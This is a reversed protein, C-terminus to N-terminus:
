LSSCESILMLDGKEDAQMRDVDNHVLKKLTIHGAPHEVIHAQQASFPQAAIQALARMADTPDGTVLVVTLQHNSRPM